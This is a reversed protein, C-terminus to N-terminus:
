PCFFLCVFLCVTASWCCCCFILSNSSNRISKITSNTYSHNKKRIKQYFTLTKNNNRKVVFFASVFLFSFIFCGCSVFCHSASIFVWKDSNISIKHLHKWSNRRIHCTGYMCTATAIYLINIPHAHRNAQSPVYHMIKLNWHDIKIWMMMMMM